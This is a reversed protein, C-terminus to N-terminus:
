IGCTYDFKKMARTQWKCRGSKYLEISIVFTSILVFAVFLGIFMYLSINENHFRVNKERLRTGMGTHNRTHTTFAQTTLHEPRLTSSLNLYKGFTENRIVAFMTSKNYIYLWRRSIQKTRKGLLFLYSFDNVWEQKPWGLRNRNRITDLLM